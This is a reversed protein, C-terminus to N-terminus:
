KGQSENNSEGEIICDRIQNLQEFGYAVFDSKM